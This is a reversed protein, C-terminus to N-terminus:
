ITAQLNDLYQDAEDRNHFVIINRSARYREILEYIKERENNRYNEVSQVLFDDLCDAIWPMDERKQGVRQRIGELCIEMPYDLFFITDAHEFRTEYTRSYDGDMIWKKEQFCQVLFEDFEARTIHTKDPKHWVMDLHILPLGTKQSLRRSFVSKGAGASGVVIVKNM